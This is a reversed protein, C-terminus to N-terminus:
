IKHDPGATMSLWRLVYMTRAERRVTLRMLSSWILSRRRLIAERKWRRAYGIMSWRRPDLM